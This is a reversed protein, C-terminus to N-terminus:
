GGSHKALLELVGPAVLALTIVLLMAGMIITIFNAAVVGAGTIKNYDLPPDRPWRAVGIIRSLLFTILALMIAEDAWKDMLHTAAKQYGQMYLAFAAGFFAGILFIPPVGWWSLGQTVKKLVKKM